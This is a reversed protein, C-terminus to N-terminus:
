RGVPFFNDFNQQPISKNNAKDEYVGESLQAKFNKGTLSEWGSGLTVTYDGSEDQEADFKLDLTKFYENFKEEEDRTFGFFAMCAQKSMKLAGESHLYLRIGEVDQDKINKGAEDTTKIKGKSDYQGVMKPTIQILRVTTRHGTKDDVKDYARGSVKKITLEYLGKKYIPTTAQVGGFDVEFTPM